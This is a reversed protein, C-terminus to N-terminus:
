WQIILAQFKCFAIGNEGRVIASRSILTGVNTLINAWSAYFVVRNIPKRFAQFSLFTSIVITTGILSLISNAREAATIADLQQETLSM